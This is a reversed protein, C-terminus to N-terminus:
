DDWLGGPQTAAISRYGVISLPLLLAESAFAEANTIATQRQELTPMYLLQVSNSAFVSAKVLALWRGIEDPTYQELGVFQVGYEPFIMYLLYRGLPYLVSGLVVQQNTRYLSVADFRSNDFNSFPELRARAFEYHFLYKKSDQYYVRDSENLLIAFKVWGLESEELGWGIDVLQASRFPENPFLIQNKWDNTAVRPASRLRYFRSSFSDSSVDPYDLVTDHLTAIGKWTTLNTSAELTLVTNTQFSSSFHVWGNTQDRDVLELRLPGPQAPSNSTLLALIIGCTLLYLKMTRREVLPGHLSQRSGAVPDSVSVIGGAPVPDSQRSDTHGCPMSVRSPVIRNFDQKPHLALAIRTLTSFAVHEPALLPENRQVNRYVLQFRLLPPHTVQAFLCLFEAVM